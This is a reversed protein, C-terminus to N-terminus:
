VIDVGGSECVTFDEEFKTAGVKFWVSRAVQRVRCFCQAFNVKMPLTTDDIVVKLRKACESTM